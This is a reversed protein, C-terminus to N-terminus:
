YDVPLYGEALMYEINAGARAAAHYREGRASASRADGYVAAREGQGALLREEPTAALDLAGDRKLM